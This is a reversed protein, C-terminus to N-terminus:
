CCVNTRCEVRPPRALGRVQKHLKTVEPSEASLQQIPGHYALQGKHILQNRLQEMEATMSEIQAGAKLDQWICTGKQGPEKNRRPRRMREYLFSSTCVPRVRADSQCCPNGLLFAWGRQPQLPQDASAVMRVYVYVQMCMHEYVHLRVLVYGHMCARACMQTMPSAVCVCLSLLRVQKELKKVRARERKVQLLVLVWTV